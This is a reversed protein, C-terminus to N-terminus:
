ASSGGGSSARDCDRDQLQRLMLMMMVPSMGNNANMMQMMMFMAMPNIGDGGNQGLMIMPLMPNMGGMMGGQFRRFPIQQQQAGGQQYGYYYPQQQTQGTGGNAQQQGTGSNQAGNQGAVLGVCLVAIISLLMALIVLSPSPLCTAGRACRSVTGM